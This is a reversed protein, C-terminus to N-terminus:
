PKVATIFIDGFLTEQELNIKSKNALHLLPVLYEVINDRDWGGVLEKFTTPDRRTKIRIERYVRKMIMELNKARVEVEIRRERRELRKSDKSETQKIVKRLFIMLEPLTIKRKPIRRVALGPESISPPLVDDEDIDDDFDVIQTEEILEEEEAMSLAEEFMFTDSSVMDSKLKVLVSGVLVVTGPVDFNVLKIDKIKKIYADALACVDVDWPDFGEQNVVEYMVDKWYNGNEISQMLDM